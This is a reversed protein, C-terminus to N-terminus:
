HAKTDLGCCSKSSSGRLRNSSTRTRSSSITCRSLTSCMSCVPRRAHPSGGYLCQLAALLRVGLPGALKAIGPYTETLREYVPWAHRELMQRLNGSYAETVFQDAQTGENSEGYLFSERPPGPINDLPSKVLAQGFCKWLCWTFGGVLCAQALSVLM